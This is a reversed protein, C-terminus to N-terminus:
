IGKRAEVLREILGDLNFHLEDDTALTIVGPPFIVRCVDKGCQVMKSTVEIKAICEGDRWQEITYRGIKKM